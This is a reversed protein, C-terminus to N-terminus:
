RCFNTRGVLPAPEENQGVGVTPSFPFRASNLNVASPMLIGTTASMLPLWVPIVSTARMQVKAQSAMLAMPNLAPGTLGQVEVSGSWTVIWAPLLYKVPLRLKLGAKESQIMPHGMPHLSGHKGTVPNGRQSCCARKASKARSDRIDFLVEPVLDTSFRPYVPQLPISSFGAM